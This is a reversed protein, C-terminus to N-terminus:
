RAGSICNEAVDEAAPSKNRPVVQFLLHSIPLILIVQAYCLFPTTLQSDDAYYNPNAVRIRKPLKISVLIM